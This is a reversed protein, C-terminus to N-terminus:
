PWQERGLATCCRRQLSLLCAQEESSARGTLVRLWLTYPIQNNNHVDADTRMMAAEEDTLKLASKTLIQQFLEGSVVGTRDQWVSEAQTLEM